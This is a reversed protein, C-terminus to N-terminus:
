SQAEEHTVLFWALESDTALRIATAPLYVVRKIVPVFISYYGWFVNDSSVKIIQGIIHKPKGRYWVNLWVYDGERFYNENEM